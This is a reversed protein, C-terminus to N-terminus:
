AIAWVLYTVGSANLSCTAEQNVIFGSSSPDIADASTIEAATSNLALVPDSASVIGRSSDFVWWNGTTSTAKICVFRAGSSFGCNIVRGTTGDGVYSNIYQVGPCTAFLYAVYNGSSANTNSATGVSFVSSTPTTSNWFQGTTDATNAAATSQLQLYGQNGVTSTYVLWGTTGSRTKVIMLEPAVGLNHAVTTASGTGTYCVVDFFGPARRFNWYAVSTAGAFAGATQFGTSDWGRTYYDTDGIEAGTSSTTVHRGVIPNGVPDTAVGRLRDMVRAMGYGSRIGAFQTDIPFGTTLKTGTAAGSIVPAFVKTADTPTKMPGRRIALYIYNIGSGNLISGTGQITFGTATPVIWGSTAVDASSSDPYLFSQSTQSLGRMNDVLVWSNGSASTDKLLLFQPEWGLTITNGSVGTGSYRGCAVVSDTGAAGFGGSNSDAFLYAVYSVGNTNTAGSGLSFVTSTPATSNWNTPDLDQAGTSNLYLSGGSAINLSRHYVTWAGAGSTAKVIIMGPTAGLNHSITRASGTGTYTVIDFFKAQKRFTWSAYTAASTNTNFGGVDAGLTFGTTTFSSLTDAATGQATTSDSRVYKGSGRLTDFLFNNSLGTSRQKLWVLGGNTALDIGNTITQSAGTGTYLHTAMVDEIYVAESATADVTGLLKREITM